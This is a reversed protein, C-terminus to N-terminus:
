QSSSMVRSPTHKVTVAAAIASHSCRGWEQVADVGPACEHLGEHQCKLAGLLVVDVVVHEPILVLHEHLRGPVGAGADCLVLDPRHLLRCKLSSKYINERHCLRQYLDFNNM